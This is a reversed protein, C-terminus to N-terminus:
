STEEPYPAYCSRMSFGVCLIESLSPILTHGQAFAGQIMLSGNYFIFLSVALAKALTTPKSSNTSTEVRRRGSLEERRKNWATADVWKYNQLQTSLSELFTRRLPDGEHAWADFSLFAFGTKAEVIKRLLNVVTTKGAGWKGEIGLIKGGPEDVATVLEAIAIALREHPGNGKEDGFADRIAPDDDLLRTRCKATGPPLVDSM